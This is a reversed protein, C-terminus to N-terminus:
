KARTYRYQFLHMEKGDPLTMYLDFQRRDPALRKEVSRWTTLRGSQPDPGKGSFTLVAGSADSTGEFVFLSPNFSDIWTSVWKKKAPDYGVTASGHLTRGMIDCEFSSVTWFEGLREVREKARTLLPASPDWYFECEVNWNGVNELLRRHEATPEPLGQQETM